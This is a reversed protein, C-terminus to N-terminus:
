RIIHERSYSIIGVLRTNWCVHHWICLDSLICIWQFISLWVTTSWKGLANPLKDSIMRRKAFAKPPVEFVMQGMEFKTKGFQFRLNASQTKWKVNKGVSKTLKALSFKFIDFDFRWFCLHWLWIILQANCLGYHQALWFVSHITSYYNTVIYVVCWDIIIRFPSLRFGAWKCFENCVHQEKFLEVGKQVNGDSFLRQGQGVSRSSCFM